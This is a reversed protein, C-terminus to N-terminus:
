REDHKGGDLLFRYIGADNALSEVEWQIALSSSKRRLAEVITVFILFVLAGKQRGWGEQCSAKLAAFQTKVLHSLSQITVYPLLEKLAVEAPTTDQSKVWERLPKHLVNLPLKGTIRPVDNDDFSLRMIQRDSRFELEEMPTGQRDKLKISITGNM